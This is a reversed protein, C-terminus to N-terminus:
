PSFVASIFRQIKPGMGRNFWLAKRKLGFHTNLGIHGPHPSPLHHYVPDGVLEGEVVEPCLEPVMDM